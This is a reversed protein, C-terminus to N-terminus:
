YLGRGSMYAGDQRPAYASVPSPASNGAPAFTATPPGLSGSAPVSQEWRADFGTPAPAPTSKASAMEYRTGASRTAAPASPLPASEIRSAVARTPPNSPASAIQRRPAPEVTDDPVEAQQEGLTYPRSDPVPV